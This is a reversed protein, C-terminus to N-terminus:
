SADVIYLPTFIFFVWQLPTNWSRVSPTYVFMSMNTSNKVKDKCNVSVTTFCFVSFHSKM